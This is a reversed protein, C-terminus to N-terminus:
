TVKEYNFLFSLLLSIFLSIKCLYAGVYAYVSLNTWM